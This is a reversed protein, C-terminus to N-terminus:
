HKAREGDALGANRPQEFALVHQAGSGGHLGQTGFDGAVTRIPQDRATSEAAQGFRRIHQVHAIGAGGRPQQRANEGGMLKIRHHGAVGRQAFAWHAPHDVGQLGCTRLKEGPSAVAQRQRNDAGAVRHRKGVPQWHGGGLHFGGHQECAEVGRAEGLDLLGFGGAVMRLVHEAMEARFHGHGFGALAPM